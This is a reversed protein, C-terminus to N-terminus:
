EFWRVSISDFSEGEEGFGFFEEGVLMVTASFSAAVSWDAGEEGFPACDVGAMGAEFVAAVVGAGAAAFDAWGALMSGTAFGVFVVAVRSASLVASTVAVFALSLGDESGFFFAVAEFRFVALFFVAVTFDATESVGLFSFDSDWCGGLGM